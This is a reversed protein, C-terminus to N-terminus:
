ASSRANGSGHGSDHRPLRATFRTQRRGGTRVHAAASTGDVSVVNVRIRKQITGRTIVPSPRYSQCPKEGDIHHSVLHCADRTASYNQPGADCSVLPADRGALWTLVSDDFYLDDVCPARGPVALFCVRNRWFSHSPRASRAHGPKDIVVQWHCQQLPLDHLRDHFGGGKVLDIAQPWVRRLDEYGSKEREIRGSYIM